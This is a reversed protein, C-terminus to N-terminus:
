DAEDTKAQRLEALIRQLPEARRLLEAYAQEATLRIEVKEGEVEVEQPPMLIERLRKAGSM